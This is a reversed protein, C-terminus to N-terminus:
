ACKKKEESQCHCCKGTRNTATNMRRGCACRPKPKYRQTFDWKSYCVACMGRGKIKRDCGNICTLGPLKEQRALYVYHTRCYTKGAFAEHDCIFQCYGRNVEEARHKM